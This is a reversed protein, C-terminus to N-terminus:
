SPWWYRTRQFAYTPLEVPTAGTGDFVPAWNVTVGRRHAGALVTVVGGALTEPPTGPATLTVTLAPSASPDGPTRTAVLHVADPLTVDGAAHAAAIEGTGHGTSTDPRLGCATLLRHLAIQHALHWLEAAQRDAPDPTAIGAVVDRLSTTLHKDAHAAVEDFAEAYAPYPVAPSPNEPAAAFAFAVEHDPRARGTAAVSSLGALLEGRDRGVVVARHELAARTTALSFGVDVPDLDPHDALYSRLRAAQATLAEPTRASLPWPIETLTRTAPEPPEPEPAQELVVHVNTGSIGVSTVAARRPHGRDPWPTHETALRLRGTSWDIDPSPEDVHLTAPVEAHRMAQIMKIVGAIGSASQTHGLNSKISGLLLPDGPRRVTGYTALMAHAEIADGLRTGSGHAEIVDVDDLGLGADALAHRVTRQQTQGSPVTLGNASGSRNTASGRVLGLVRHGNACARSLRELLLVGAGESWGSGDASAAFSRCRGDPALGVSRMFDTHVHPTANVAVGCALALDSEGLRLSQCALHVAVLSASCATDVTASPGELGLEYAIRGATMAGTVGAVLNDNPEDGTQATLAYLRYFAGVFVGTRTGRLSSPDIGGHEVAEWATELLLRQQPDTAVAAEDTMGFFGADFDGADYLFGGERQRLAGVPTTVQDGNPFWGRDAPPPGVTDVGSRVVEWLDDPSAIGGPYRCGIGVVAVPEHAADELERVRARTAQLEALAKKLYERLKETNESM